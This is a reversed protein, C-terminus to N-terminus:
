TPLVTGSTSSSPRACAAERYAELDRMVRAPSDDRGVLSRRHYFDFGPAVLSPHGTQAMLDTFHNDTWYHCAVVPRWWELRCFPVRCFDRGFPAKGDERVWGMPVGGLGVVGLAAALWADGEPELDDAGLHLLEGTAKAAGANWAAGCNDFGREVIWEIPAPTLREYAEVTRELESERGSITPVVVSLRM